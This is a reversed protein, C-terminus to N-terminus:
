KMDVGKLFETVAALEYPVDENSLYGDEIYIEEDIVGNVLQYIDKRYICGKFEVWYHYSNDIVCNENSRNTRIQMKIIEM